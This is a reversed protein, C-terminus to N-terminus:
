RPEDLPSDEWLSRDLLRGWNENFPHVARVIEGDRYVPRGENAWQFISGELNYVDTFGNEILRVALASSRYGVSCYVVVPADTRGGLARNLEGPASAPIADRLHSVQYEGVSRADILVPWEEAPGSLREALEDTTMQRVAPFERRIDSKVRDWDDGTGACGALGWALVLVTAAIPPRRVDGPEVRCIARRTKM